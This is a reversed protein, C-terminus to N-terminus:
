RPVVQGSMTRKLTPHSLRSPKKNRTGFHGAHLSDVHARAKAESATKERHKDRLAPALNRERNEGGDRLAVVHDLDWPEAAMIKRKAIHCRGGCRLFIRQRVHDPPASNPTKGIWEPIERRTWENESM